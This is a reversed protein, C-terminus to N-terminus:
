PHVSSFGALRAIDEHWKPSYKMTCSGLPYFGLDVGFNLQSLNLFYRVLEVESVEPLALDARLLEGPLETYPVDLAPLTGGMKGPQSIDPLLYHRRM